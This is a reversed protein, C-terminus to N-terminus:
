GRRTKWSTAAAGIVGADRGTEASVIRVDRHGPWWIHKRAFDTLRGRFPGERLGLGGGLIVVEPDLVNVLAGISAGLVTAGREVIQQAQTQGGAAAAFVEEARVVAASTAANYSTVIGAGSAVQELSPQLGRPDLAPMPGSAMTGTAGRAGRFPEGDIVLACSIGTGISVYLFSHRGRGAGFYAEARAAARVDAEISVPAIQQLRERVEREGWRLLADSAIVGETTVIECIGIGIGHVALGEGRSEAELASVLHVVTDLSGSGASATPTPANIRKRVKGAPFSVLGAAIKTGGVDVGIAVFDDM